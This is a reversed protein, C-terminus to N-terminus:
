LEELQQTTIRPSIGKAKLQETTFIDAVHMTMQPEYWIGVVVITGEPPITEHAPNILAWEGQERQLYPVGDLYKIRGRTLKNRMSM